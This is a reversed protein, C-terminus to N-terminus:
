EESGTLAHKSLNNPSKSNLDITLHKLRNQVGEVWGEPAITQTTYVKSHELKPPSAVPSKVIIPYDAANLMAIDNGSDGLAITVCNSDPHAQQFVTTLWHLARGKDCDGSVHIFRGGQLVNAGLSQLQHVFSDLQETDGRWQLPEGYHRNGAMTAAEVSLGTMEIIGDVGAQAFTTYRNQHSVGAQEIIRQWHERPQVFECIWYRDNDVTNDPQQSFYGQPILVAAGNEIIFPHRNDLEIRLALVEERTKSTTFVVPIGADDLQALLPLAADYQYDHHNLLSGDLDTFIIPLVM